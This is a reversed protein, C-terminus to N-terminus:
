IYAVLTPRTGPTPYAVLPFKTRLSQIYTPFTSQLPQLYAGFTTGTDPSQTPYILINTLIFASLSSTLIPSTLLTLVLSIFTQYPLVFQVFVALIDTSPTRTPSTLIFVRIKQPKKGFDTDISQNWWMNNNRNKDM